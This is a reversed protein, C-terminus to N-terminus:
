YQAVAFVWWTAKTEVRSVFDAWSESQRALISLVTESYPCSTHVLRLADYSTTWTRRIKKIEGDDLLAAFIEIKILRRENRTHPHSPITIHHMAKKRRLPTCRYSANIGALSSHTFERERPNPPLICCALEM